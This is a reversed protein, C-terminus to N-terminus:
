SGGGNAWFWNGVSKIKKTRNTKKKKAKEEDNHTEHGMWERRPGLQAHETLQPQWLSLRRAVMGRKRVLGPCCGCGSEVVVRTGLTCGASDATALNLLLFAMADGM